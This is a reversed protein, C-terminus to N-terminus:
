ILFIELSNPIIQEYTTWNLLVPFDPLETLQNFYNVFALNVTFYIILDSSSEPCAALSELLFHNEAEMGCNCFMIIKLEVLPFRPIKVLIHNSKTCKLHEESLGNGLVLKMEVM